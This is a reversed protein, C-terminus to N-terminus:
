FIQRKKLNRARLNAVVASRSRRHRHSSRQNRRLKDISEYKDEDFGAQTRQQTKEYQADREEEHPNRYSSESLLQQVVIMMGIDM